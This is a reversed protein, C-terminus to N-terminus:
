HYELTMAEQKIFVPTLVTCTTLALVANPM